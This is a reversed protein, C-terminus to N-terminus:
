LATEKYTITDLCLNMFCFIYIQFLSSMDMFSDGENLNMFAGLCIMKHKSSNYFTFGQKSVEKINLNVHLTYESRICRLSNRVMQEWQTTGSILTSADIPRSYCSEKKEKPGRTLSEGYFYPLFKTVAITIM